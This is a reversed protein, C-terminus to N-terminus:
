CIALLRAPGASCWTALLIVQPSIRVTTKMSFCRWWGFHHSCFVLRCGGLLIGLSYPMWLGGSGQSTTESGTLDAVVTVSVAPCEDLLRIGAALGIVGAGLVAINSTKVEM